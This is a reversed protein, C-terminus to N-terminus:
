RSVAGTSTASVTTNASSSALVRGAQVQAGGGLHRAPGENGDHPHEGARSAGGSVRLAPSPEARSSAVGM